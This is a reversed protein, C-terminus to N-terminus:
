ASQLAVAASEIDDFDQEMAKRTARLGIPGLLRALTGSIGGDPSTGTFTMTLETGNGTSADALTWTTSYDTGHSSAEVVTSRLPDNRRVWMEETAARGFFNRTERWRTGVAYPGSTMIHVSDIGSLRDAVRSLDTLVDWVQDVPAPIVRSVILTQEPM